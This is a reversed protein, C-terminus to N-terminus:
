EEKGAHLALWELVEKEDELSDEGYQQLAHGLTCSFFEFHGDGTDFMHQQVEAMARFVKPTMQEIAMTDLGSSSHIMIVTVEKHKFKPNNAWNKKVM